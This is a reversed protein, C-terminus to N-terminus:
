RIDAPACSAAAGWITHGDSDHHRFKRPRLPGYATLACQNALQYVFKAWQAQDSRGSRAVADLVRAAVAKVRPFPRTEYERDSRTPNTACLDGPPPGRPRLRSVLSPACPRRRGRSCAAAPPLARLAAAPRARGLWKTTRETRRTWIPGSVRVRYGWGDHAARGTRDPSALLPLPGAATSHGARLPWAPALPARHAHRIRM